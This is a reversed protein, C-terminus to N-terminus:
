YQYCCTFIYASESDAHGIFQIGAVYYGVACRYASFDRGTFNGTLYCSNQQLNGMQSAWRGTARIYYDNANIYGAQYSTGNNDWYAKWNGDGGLFGVLNSNAHIYKVGNPSEDDLMTIYSYAGGANGTTLGNTSTIGSATFSGAKTQATASVNIPAAVNNNPPAATPGTWALVYQVGTAMFVGSILGICGFLLQKGATTFIKEM